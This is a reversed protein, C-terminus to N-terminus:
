YKSHEILDYLADLDDAITDLGMARLGAEWRGRPPAMSSDALGLSLQYLRARIRHTNGVLYARYRVRETTDLTEIAEPNKPFGAEELKALIPAIYESEATTLQASQTSEAWAQRSQGLVIKQTQKVQIAVYILTVFVAISGLFEGVAGIDQITWGM